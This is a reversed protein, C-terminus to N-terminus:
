NLKLNLDMEEKRYEKLRDHLNAITARLDDEVASQQLTANRESFKDGLPSDDEDSSHHRKNGSPSDSDDLREEGFAESRNRKMEGNGENNSKYEFSASVSGSASAEM